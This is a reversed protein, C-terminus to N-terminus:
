FLAPARPRRAIEAHDVIPAPYGLRALEDAGLKWPEHIAPAALGALEPVYRRVYDGNPDRRRAQLTPNFTRGARTHDVGTGAVWQWNGVNSAVDADVLLESFHRAGERWDVRLDKVLFSATVLRARNHMWGERALQRMGADVLPYGTRGAKWAEIADPDDTSGVERPHLDHRALAPFAHLLQAYFDRWCLERIWPEGGEADRARVVCELASVCGFHLYPSLRSTEEAALDSGGRDRGYRALGEALWAELRERGVAEGGRVVGPSRGHPLGPLEARGVGDALRMPPSPDPARLPENLWRRWYPTFVRYPNLADLPLATTGPFLRLDVAARLRAERRQAYGSADQSAYVRRAGWERAARVTEEVVDGRRVVLGGLSVDLDALSELLFGLRNPPATVAPDLVFLPV